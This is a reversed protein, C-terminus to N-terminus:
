CDSETFHCPKTPAISDTVYKGDDPYTRYEEPLLGYKKAAARREEETQPLPGPAFDKNWDLFLRSFLVNKVLDGNKMSYDFGNTM